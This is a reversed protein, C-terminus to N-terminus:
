PRTESKQGWKGWKTNMKLKALHRQGANKSIFVKDLAYSHKRRYDETYRDHEIEVWYLYSSSEQKLQLFMNVYM